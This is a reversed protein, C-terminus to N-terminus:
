LQAGARFLAYIAGWGMALMLAFIGWALLEWKRLSAKTVAAGWTMMATHIGNALHYAIGLVGLIYVVLTPKHFHM